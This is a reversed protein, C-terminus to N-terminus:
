RTLKMRQFVLLNERLAEILQETRSGTPTMSASPGQAEPADSLADAQSQPSKTLLFHVAALAKRRAKGQLADVSEKGHAILPFVRGEGGDAGKLSNPLGYMKWRVAVRCRFAGGELVPVGPIVDLDTLGPIEGVLREYGEKTVYCSGAIINIENGVPFVGRLLGEIVCRKVTQTDYGGERDKDTRFGLKSGQLRVLKAVIEPSIARNLSEIADALLMARRLCTAGEDEAKSRYDSAIRDAEETARIVLDLPNVPAEREVTTAAAGNSGQQSKAVKM